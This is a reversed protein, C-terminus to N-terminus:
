RVPSEFILSFLLDFIHAQTRDYASRHLSDRGEAAMAMIKLLNAIVAYDPDPRVGEMLSFMGKMLRTEADLDVIAADPIARCLKQEDEPTLYQYASNESFIIKKLVEQGEAQTMKPRDGLLERMYALFIQREHCIIEYVYAEKSPFFNYFTSKGIGVSGAIRDVSMHTMGYQQLLPIGAELLRVRLAQREALTFIKPSM